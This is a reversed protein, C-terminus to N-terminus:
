GNTASAADPNHQPEDSRGMQSTIKLNQNISNATQKQPLMKNRLCCNPTHDKSATLEKNNFCRGPTKM